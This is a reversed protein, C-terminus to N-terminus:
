RAGPETHMLSWYAGGAAAALLLLLSALGYLLWKRLRRM